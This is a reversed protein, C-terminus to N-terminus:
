GGVAAYRRLGLRWVVGTVPIFIALWLIQYGYGAAVQHGPLTGSAIEAPFGLMARFPLAEGLPRVAEPLLMVPAAVGGLLFLMVGGFETVGGAQQGWLASLTLVYVFVFHLVAALILAPIALLVDSVSLTIGTIVMVVAVIPLGALLHWARAALCEGIPSFVFPHPKLLDDNLGGDYIHMSVSYYEQSATALQVVLLAVYYHTIGAQGPLAASWVALGLLPTVAQNIVLTYMFSRFAMWGLFSRKSYAVVLTIVRRM